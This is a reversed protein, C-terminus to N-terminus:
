YDDRNVNGKGTVAYSACRWCLRVSGCFIVFGGIMFMWFTNHLVFYGCLLAFAALFIACIGQIWRATYDREDWM